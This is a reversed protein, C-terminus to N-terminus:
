ERAIGDPERVQFVNGEPDLGDCVRWGRFVWEKSAANFMGGHSEAAARVDAISKVFFVPKFAANSRRVPPVAIEAPDAGHRHHRLVVLQFADSELVVHTEDRDKVNLGLTATYFEALRSIEAAYLVAGAAPGTKV